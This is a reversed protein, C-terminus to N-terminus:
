SKKKIFDNIVNQSDLGRSIDCKMIFSNILDIKRWQLAYNKKKKVRNVYFIYIIYKINFLWLVEPYRFDYHDKSQLGCMGEKSGAPGAHLYYTIKTNSLNLINNFRYKINKIYKEVISVIRKEATAGEEAM